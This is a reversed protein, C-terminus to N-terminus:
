AVQAAQHYARAALVPSAAAQAGSGGTRHIELATETLITAALGFPGGFLLSTAAAVAVQLGPHVRQGTIARYITGVVPLYQLPNIDNLVDSFTVHSLDWSAPSPNSGGLPSTARTPFQQVPDM